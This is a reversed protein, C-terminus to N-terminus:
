NIKASIGYSVISTNDLDLCFHMMIEGPLVICYTHYDNGSPNSTIKFMNNVAAIPDFGTITANTIEGTPGNYKMYQGLNVFGSAPFSFYGVGQEDGMIDLFRYTGAISAQTIHTNPYKVGLTFGYGVGNDFLMAKGPYITGTYDIGGETFIVRSHDTSSVAWTGSGEGSFNSNSFNAPDAPGYGWTYTGDANLEYGGYVNSADQDDVDYILLFLYKGALDNVSFNTLLDLDASLGFCLANEARGSPLCTAFAKEALEIAYFDDNGLTIEYIGNLNSNTSVVYSGSDSQGTTENFYKYTHNTENVEYIIVDGYSGSATYKNTNVPAPPNPDDTETKDDKKCAGFLLAITLLFISQKLLKTRM